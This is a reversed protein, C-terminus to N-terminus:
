REKQLMELFEFTDIAAGAAHKHGGGGLQEAIDLATPTHGEKSRISMKVKMGDIRYMIIAKDVEGSVRNGFLYQLDTLNYTPVRFDGVEAYMADQDIVKLIKKEDAEVLLSGKDLVDQIDRDLIELFREPDNTYLYLYTCANMSDPVLEKKFLDLDEVYSVLTPVPDEKFFYEWSLTAGSKENNFVFTYNDNESDLKECEEKVSIHHDITIVTEFRSVFYEVQIANDLTYVHTDRSVGELYGDLEAETADHSIPIVVADPFRKLFIAASM